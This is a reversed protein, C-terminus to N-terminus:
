AGASVTQGGARFALRGGAVVARIREVGFRYVLHRRNPVSHLVLDARKGVELSGCRDALGIAAAANLTSATIAEDVSLGFRLCGLWLATGMSECPCTGPNFDSGLAVPVGAEVLRRVPPLTKERLFLSPGPLLVACTGSRALAEIGAASVHELHDASAAGLEAALEAAGDAAFQDAHVKLGLGVWRAAELVRRAEGVSFARRDVFVDAFRALKRRAVEPLMEAVISQVYDERMGEYESPVRHAGLFTPVVQVPHGTAAERVAELQKLEAGVSLGYGSKAEVTTTGLRLIGDLRERVLRVLDGFEVQRTAAVTSLIGGGRAAIEEYTAGRLLEDFEAERWGAFPLHTHADVFGPLATGGEADLLTGGELLRVERHFDEEAGVFVIRGERCAVAANEVVELRSLAPGTRATRGTPTALERIGVVGLDAEIM